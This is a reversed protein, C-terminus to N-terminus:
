EREAFGLVKRTSEAVSEQILLRVIEAGCEEPKCFKFITHYDRAMSHMIKILQVNSAPPKPIKKGELEAKRKAKYYRFMQPNKWNILDEIDKIGDKNEVLIILRINNNLALKVEDRFREHDQILDSYLESCSFKTDVCVDYTGLLDMKKVPIGRKEKRKLVEEVKENSLIYDGVPLPIRVCEIGNESFYKRKNEHKDAKQAVDEFVKMKM